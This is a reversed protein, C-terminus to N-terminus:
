KTKKVGKREATPGTAPDTAGDEDSLADIGAAGSLGLNHAKNVLDSVDADTLGKAVKLALIQAILEDKEKTLADLIAQQAEVIAQEIAAKQQAADM